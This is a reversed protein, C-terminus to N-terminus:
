DETTSSVGMLAVTDHPTEVMELGIRGIKAAPKGSTGTLRAKAGARAVRCRVSGVSVGLREAIRKNTFGVRKLGAAIAVMEETWDEHKGRM